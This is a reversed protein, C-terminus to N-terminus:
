NNIEKINIVRDFDKFVSKNHSILILTYEKKLKFLDDLLENETLKDLSNTSEDMILIEPNRYLARAIGIRQKQGGSINAGREGVITELGNPLNKIFEELFVMRIVEEIKKKDIDDENEGFAINKRITDNTLYVDQPVYSIKNQWNFINEYISQDDCKIDGKKPRLMGMLLTVLTSKGSGSSGIIGM